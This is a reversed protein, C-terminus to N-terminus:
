QQPGVQTQPEQDQHNSVALGAMALETRALAADLFEADGSNIVMIPDASVMVVDAEWQHTASM